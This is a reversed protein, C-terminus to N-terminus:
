SALCAKHEAAKISMILLYAAKNALVRNTKTM